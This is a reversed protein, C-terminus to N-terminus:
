ALEPCKSREVELWFNSLESFLGDCYGYNIAVPVFQIREIRSKRENLTYPVYVSQEIGTVLHQHQMQIWHHDLPAKTKAILDFNKDGMFKIELFLDDGILGDLSARLYGYVPHVLEAPEADESHEFFYLARAASEWKTGLAMAPNVEIPKGRGLKDLLIDERTQYPSQGMIAPADSSGIGQRRWELWEASGQVM